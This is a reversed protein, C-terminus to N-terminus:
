LQSPIVIIFQTKRLDSRLYPSSYSKRGGGHAVGGYFRSYDTKFSDSDEQWENFRITLRSVPHAPKTNEWFCKDMLRLIRRLKMRSPIPYATIAHVTHKRLMYVRASTQTREKNAANMEMAVASQKIAQIMGNMADSTNRNLDRELDIRYYDFMFEFLGTAYHDSVFCHALISNVREREDLVYKQHKKLILIFVEGLMQQNGSPNLKNGLIRGVHGWYNGDYLRIGIQVLAVAIMPDLMNQLGSKAMASFKNKFIEMLVDFEEDNINIDGIFKKKPFEAAIRNKLKQFPTMTKKM